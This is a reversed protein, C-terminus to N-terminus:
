IDLKILYMNENLSKELEKVSSTLASSIRMNMCAVVLCSTVQKNAVIRKGFLWLQGVVLV